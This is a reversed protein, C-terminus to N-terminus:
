PATRSSCTARGRSRRPRRSAGARPEDTRQAEGGNLDFGFNGVYARGRADVVMDNAHFHAVGSLDAHVVLGDRERRLLKRQHM